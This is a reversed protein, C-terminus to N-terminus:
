ISRYFPFHFVNIYAEYWGPNEFMNRIIVSPVDTNYYGMGIYSRWVSNKEALTQIHKLLDQEGLPSDLKM